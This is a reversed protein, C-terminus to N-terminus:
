QAMFGTPLGRGWEEASHQGLQANQLLEQHVYRRSDALTETPAQKRRAELLLAALASLQPAAFSSGSEFTETSPSYVGEAPIALTRRQIPLFKGPVTATLAIDDAFITLNAAFIALDQHDSNKYLDMLLKIDYSAINNVPGLELETRRHNLSGSLDTGTNGLAKILIGQQVFQNFAEKFVPEIVKLQANEPFARSFNVIDIDSQDVIYQMAEPYSKVDSWITIIEADPAIELLIDIITNGHSLELPNGFIKPLHIKARSYKLRQKDLLALDFVDFVVV